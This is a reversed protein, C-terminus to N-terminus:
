GIIIYNSIRVYLHCASSLSVITPPSSKSSRGEKEESSRESEDAEGTGDASLGCLPDPGGTAKKLCTTILVVKAVRRRKAIVMGALSKRGAWRRSNKAKSAAIGEWDQRTKQSPEQKSEVRV